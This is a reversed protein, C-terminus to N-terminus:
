SDISVLTGRRTEKAKKNKAEEKEKAKAWVPHERLWHQKM